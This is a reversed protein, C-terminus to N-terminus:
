FLLRHVPVIRYSNVSKTALSQKNIEIAYLQLSAIKLTSFPMRNENARKRVSPKRFFILALNRRANISNITDRRANQFYAIDSIYIHKFLVISGFCHCSLM